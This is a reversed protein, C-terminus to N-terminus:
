IRGELSPMRAPDLAHGPVDHALSEGREEGPGVLDADTLRARSEAPLERDGDVVQATIRSLACAHLRPERMGLGLDLRPGPGSVPDHEVALVVHVGRHGGPDVRKLHNAGRVTARNPASRPAELWGGSSGPAPPVQPITSVTSSSLPSRREAFM